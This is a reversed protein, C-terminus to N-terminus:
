QEKNQHEIFQNYYKEVFGSPAVSKRHVQDFWEMFSMAQQKAWDDMAEKAGNITVYKIGYKADAIQPKLWLFEDKTM